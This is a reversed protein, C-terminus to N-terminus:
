LRKRTNKLTQLNDKRYLMKLNNQYKLQIEVEDKDYAFINQKFHWDTIDEISRHKKFEKERKMIYYTVFESTKGRQMASNTPQRHKFGYQYLWASPNIMFKQGGSFSHCYEEKIWKNM